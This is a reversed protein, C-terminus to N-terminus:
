KLVQGGDLVITQGHISPQRFYGPAPQASALAAPLLAASFLLCFVSNKMASKLPMLM